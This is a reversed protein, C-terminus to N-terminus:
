HWLFSGGDLAIDALPLIDEPFPPVGSPVVLCPLPDDFVYQALGVLRPWPFFSKVSFPLDSGLPPLVPSLVVVTRLTWRMSRLVRSRTLFSFTIVALGVSSQMGGFVSFPFSYGSARHGLHRGELLLSACRGAWYEKRREWGKLTHDLTYTLRFWWSKTIAKEFLFGSKEISFLPKRSSSGLNSSPVEDKGLSQSGEIRQQM